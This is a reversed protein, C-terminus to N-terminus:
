ATNHCRYCGSIRVIMRSKASSRDLNFHTIIQLIDIIHWLGYHSWNSIKCLHNFDYEIATSLVSFLPGSRERICADRPEFSICNVPVSQIYPPQM